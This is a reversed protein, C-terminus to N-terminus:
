RELHHSAQISVRGQQAWAHSTILQIHRVRVRAGLYAAVAASIVLVIEEPIDAHVPVPATASADQPVAAAAVAGRTVAERSVTESSEAARQLAEVRATMEALQQRLRDLEAQVAHGAAGDQGEGKEHTM